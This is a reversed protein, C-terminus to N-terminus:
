ANEKEFKKKITESLLRSEVSNKVRNAYDLIWIDRFAFYETLVLAIEAKTMRQIINESNLRYLFIKIRNYIGPAPKLIIKFIKILGGNVYLEDAAKREGDMDGPKIGPDHERFIKLIEQEEPYLLQKQIWKTKALTYRSIESTVKKGNNPM